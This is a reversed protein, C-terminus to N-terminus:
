ADVAVGALLRSLGLLTIREATPVGAETWGMLGYWDNRARLFAEETIEVGALPGEVFAKMVRKPLRDDAATLGERLNFLRCLTQAREGITLFDLATYEYGTLASLVEAMHGYSYPLFHCVVLSDLAHKRNVEHFFLAMKQHGLDNFPMPEFRQVEAVREIGDGPKTFGTDHMNMMHDGGVPATAYGIGLAHKARPEHMALEMGKVEVLSDEAGNGIWAALRKSGEAMRDGFGARHAILEVAKLMAAADGWRPLFGGTQEATLLGRDVCEMVFAITAGLSISDLGWRATLENAKAVAPLDNVGCDSGLSALTEYEPGGYAEDIKVEAGVHVPRDGVTGARGDYSVVLKCKIPCAQCTDRGIILTQHLLEGGISAHEAFYTDQFNRTPLASAPALTSINFPTGIRVAWGAKAQYNEGLWKAVGTVRKREAAPVNLSGRVAVARLRKSGMVAGLGGRGAARNIDSMIAAFRVGNEGAIGCQAVRVREDGLEARIAQEVDATDRGWLHAAPRIEAGGDTIWLYVPAEARGHVILADFGARKFEHGWWGGVESSAIAGTLPSKAAIGHRGSGPLNSGQFIGPAFVLPNDPGLPDAGAPMDRLLLYAALGRGGVLKLYVDDPPTEIWQRGDSLDIHLLKGWTGGVTM